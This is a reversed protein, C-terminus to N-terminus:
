PNTHTQEPEHGEQKPETVTPRPREPWQECRCWSNSKGAVPIPLPLQIPILLGAGISSREAVLSGDNAQWLRVTRSDTGFGIVGKVVTDFKYGLDMVLVGKDCSFDKGNVLTRQSLEAGTPGREVFEFSDKAPQRIIIRQVEPHSESSASGLYHTLSCGGHKNPHTVEYCSKDYVGVLNPCADGEATRLAPWGVDSYPVTASICGGLLFALALVLLPLPTNM